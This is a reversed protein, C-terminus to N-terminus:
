RREEIIIESLPRGAIQVPKWQPRNARDKSRCPASLLFGTELLKREFAEEQQKVSDVPELQNALEEYVAYPILVAQPSGHREIVVQERGYSVRNLLEALQRRFQEAGVHITQM